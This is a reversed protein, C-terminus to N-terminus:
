ASASSASWARTAAGSGACPTATSATGSPGPRAPLRRGSLRRPRRGVARRDAEGAVAGPGPPDGGPVRELPRVGAGRRSLAPALDFRFGDVHMQVVWYRLSDLVLQLAQPHRTHLTNGCGTYMSTSARTTTALAYYARNDLGRLSLTPGHPGGECTHNYVVDLIVEIGAAHLARVM